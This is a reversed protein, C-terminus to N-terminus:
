DLVSLPNIMKGNKYISLHVHPGTSYGTNGAKGLVSGQLLSSGKKVGISHLHGYLSQYGGDHSIIVYNGYVPSYGTVAVKGDMVAKVPTGQPVALDIGTHFTRAGTFPDSRYGYPSTLRGAVPRIFLEGMAKKLDFRSLAAGPIFLSQGASLTESSLDNVDLLATVSVGHRKALGSLTDGKAVTHRLGDMSPIDLTQGVRLRRANDIGNVALITGVNRLGFRSAIRSVSDGARVTYRQWTVTRLAEPVPVPDNLPATDASAGAEPLAQGGPSLVADFALPLSDDSALSIRELRYHGLRDQLLPATSLLAAMAVLFVFPAPLDMAIRPVARAAARPASRPSMAPIFRNEPRLLTIVEM